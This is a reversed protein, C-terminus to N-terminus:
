STAAGDEQDPGLIESIKFGGWGYGLVVRYKGSKGTHLRFHKGLVRLVKELKQVKDMLPQLTAITLKHPGPAVQFELSFGQKLSGAQGEGDDISVKVLYEIPFTMGSWEVIVAAANSTDLTSTTAVTPSSPVVPARAMEASKAAAALKSDVLRSIESIAARIPSSPVIPAVAIETSQTPTAAKSDVLRSVESIAARIKQVVDLWAADRDPWSSVPKGDRPAALLKGLPDIRWDCPRLIIPIVRAQGANHRNMAIVLETQWCYESSIYDASVLLLIVADSEFRERLATDFESGATLKRDHWDTIVGSRRLSALHTVLEDKYQEDKHSYSIVVSVLGVEKRQSEIKCGRSKAVWPYGPQPALQFLPEGLLAIRGHDSEEEAENGAM